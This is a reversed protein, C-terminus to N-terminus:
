LGWGLWISLVAIVNNVGHTVIGPLLSDTFQYLGALIVGLVFIPLAHVVQVHVITFFLASALAAARSPFRYRGLLAGPAVLM